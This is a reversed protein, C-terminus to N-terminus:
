SCKTGIFCVRMMGWAVKETDKNLVRNLLGENLVKVSQSKMHLVKM